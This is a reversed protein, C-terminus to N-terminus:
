LRRDATQQLAWWSRWSTRFPVSKAEVNAAWPDLSARLMSPRPIDHVRQRQATARDKYDLVIGKDSKVKFGEKAGGSCLHM